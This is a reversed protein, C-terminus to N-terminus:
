DSGCHRNRQNRGWYRDTCRQRSQRDQDLVCEIAVVLGGFGEGAAYGFIQHQPREVIVRRYYRPRDKSGPQGTQHESAGAKESPPVTPPLGLAETRQMMAAHEVIRVGVAGAAAAVDGHDERARKLVAGIDRAALWWAAEHGSPNKTAILRQDRTL